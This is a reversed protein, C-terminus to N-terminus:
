SSMRTLFHRSSLLNEGIDMASRVGSGFLSGYMAAGPVVLPMMMDPASEPRCFITISGAVPVMEMLGLCREVRLSSSKGVKRERINRAMSMAFLHLERIASLAEMAM